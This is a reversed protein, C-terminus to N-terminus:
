HASGIVKGRFTDLCANFRSSQTLFPAHGCGAFVVQHASPIQQALFESAQPPCIVDCDGNLILTPLDILALRDRLDTETLADLAQLVVDTVPMPVSSLLERVVAALPAADLEGAAFMHATFGDLARRLSRRVKGAMGDVENKSLGYPFGDGQTFRPTGSILVLGALRERLLTFSELAILSGLSWGALLAQQLDLFQFLGAIDGACGKIHFGGAGPASHGHGPLDLTIVRFSGTLGELQLRWVASSMCWGHIFVIATGAGRDEYWLRSGSGAEYWAM